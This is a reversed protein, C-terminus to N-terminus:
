LFHPVVHVILIDDDTSFCLVIVARHFVKHAFGKPVHVSRAAHLMIHEVPEATVRSEHRLQVKNHLLVANQDPLVDEHARRDAAVVAPVDGDHRHSRDADCRLELPLAVAFHQQVIRQFLRRSEAAARNAELPVDAEVSLAAKSVRAFEADAVM